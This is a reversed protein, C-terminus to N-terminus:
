IELSPRIQKPNMMSKKYNHSIKPVMNNMEQQIEDSNMM